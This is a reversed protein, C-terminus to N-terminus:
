RGVTDTASMGPQVAVLYGGGALPTPTELTRVVARAETDIVSILGDGGHSVFGWRGDPTIAARRSEADWPSVGPRPANGLPALAIEAVVQHFTASAPNVDLLFAHDGDPHVNFLLAYPESLAFRFVLGPALPLRTVEDTTLELAYLDNGWDQWPTEAGGMVRLYTYLHTDGLRVFYARGGSRGDADYPTVAHPALGDPTVQASEIGDDTATYFRGLAHSFAEGHGGAGVEVSSRAEVNGALVDQVAFAELRGAANRHLIHLPEGGLAVGPDQSELGFSVGEFTELDVLTLTKGPEDSGAVAYRGLPDVAIHSAPLGVPARGLV